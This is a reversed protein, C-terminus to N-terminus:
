QDEMMKLFKNFHGNGIFKGKPFVFGFKITYSLKLCSFM